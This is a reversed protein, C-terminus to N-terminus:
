GAARNRERSKQKRARAQDREAMRRCTDSCYKSKEKGPEPVFFKKCTECRKERKKRADKLARRAERAAKRAHGAQDGEAAGKTVQGYERWYAEETVPDLPLIDQEFWVCRHPANGSFFVCAHDGGPERLCCDKKGQPGRALYNACEAAALARVKALVPAPLQSRRSRTGQEKNTGAAEKEGARDGPLPSWAGCRDCWYAAGPAPDTILLKGCKGCYVAREPPNCSMKGERDVSVVTGCAFCRERAPPYADRIYRGCNPCSVEVGALKDEPPQWTPLCLPGREAERTERPWSRGSAKVARDVKEKTDPDWLGNHTRTHFDDTSIGCGPCRAYRTYGDWIFAQPKGCYPCWAVGKKPDPKFNEPPQALSMSM